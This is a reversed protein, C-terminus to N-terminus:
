ESSKSVWACLGVENHDHRGMINLRPQFTEVELHLGMIELHDGIEVKFHPPLLVVSDSVIEMGRGRSASSDARVSTKERTARLRVVSCPLRKKDTYKERGWEDFGVRKSVFCFTNPRFMKM